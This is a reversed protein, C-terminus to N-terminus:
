SFIPLLTTQEQTQRYRILVCLKYQPTILYNRCSNIFTKSFYINFLKMSINGAMGTVVTYIRERSTQYQRRVRREEHGTGGASRGSRTLPAQLGLTTNYNIINVTSPSIEVGPSIHVTWREGRREGRSPRPLSSFLNWDTAPHALAVDFHRRQLVTQLYHSLHLETDM